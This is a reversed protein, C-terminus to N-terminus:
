QVAVVELVSEAAGTAIVRDLRLGARAFLSEFEERTRERGPLIALMELDTLRDQTWWNNPPPAVIEYVLLRAHPPMARRVNQLMRVCSADDWDHLVHSLIYADAKPPADTLINGAIGELRDAKQLRSVVAGVEFVTGRVNPFRRLLAMLLAGTGGGIDVVHQMQSFDYAQAFADAFLATLSQMAGDFVAGADPHSGFYEFLSEGHTLEFGSRNQRVADALRTYGAIHWPANAYRVMTAASDAGALAEGLYGLTFREGGVCSVVDYASLARLLRYLADRNGFGQAALEDATVRRYALAEPLGLECFAAISHSVWSMTALEIIGYRRPMLRRRVKHLVDVIRTVIQVLWPPPVNM